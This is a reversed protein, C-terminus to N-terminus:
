VPPAKNFHIGTCPQSAPFTIPQTYIHHMRQQHVMTVVMVVAVRQLSSTREERKEQEQLQVDWSGEHSGDVPGSGLTNGSDISTITVRPLNSVLELSGGMLFPLGLVLILLFKKMAHYYSPIHVMNLISVRQEPNYKERM